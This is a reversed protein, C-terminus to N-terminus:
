KQTPLSPAHSSPSIFLNSPSINGFISNIDLNIANEQELLNIFNLFQEKTLASGHMAALIEINLSKLKKISETIHPGYSMYKLKKQLAMIDDSPDKDSFVERYGTQTGLDSGFLISSQQAYFLCADWNHPFHPTELLTLIENGLNISENDKLIKIERDTSDKLSSACVKGVVIQADNAIELWQNLAGSEDSELHSFALFQIDTPNIIKKVEALLHAFTKQHGMHILVPREDAILFHNFSIFANEEYLCIRYINKFLEDIKTIM